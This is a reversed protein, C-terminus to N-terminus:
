EGKPSSEIRNHMHAVTQKDSSHRNISVQINEKLSQSYNQEPSQHDLSFRRSDKWEMSTPYKPAPSNPSLTVRHEVHKSSM